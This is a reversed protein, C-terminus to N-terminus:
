NNRVLNNIAKSLQMFVHDQANLGDDENHDPEDDLDGGEDDPPNRGPTDDDENGPDEDDLGLRSPTRM